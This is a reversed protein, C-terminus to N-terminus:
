KGENVSDKRYDTVLKKLEGIAKRADGKSKKTLGNHANEFTEWLQKMEEFIVQASM